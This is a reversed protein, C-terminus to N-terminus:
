PRTAWFDPHARRFAALAAPDAQAKKAAGILSPGDLRLVLEFQAASASTKGLLGLAEGRFLAILPLNGGRRDLTEALVALTGEALAPEAMAQDVYYVLAADWDSDKNAPDAARTRLQDVLLALQAPVPGSERNYQAYIRAALARFERGDGRPGPVKLALWGPVTNKRPVTDNKGDANADLSLVPQAATGEVAGFTLLPAGGVPRLVLPFPPRSFGPDSALLATEWGPRGAVPALVRSWPYTPVPEAFATGAGWLLLLLVSRRM